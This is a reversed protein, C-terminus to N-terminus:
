VLVLMTLFDFSTLATLECDGGKYPRLDTSGRGKENAFPSKERAEESYEGVLSIAANVDRLYPSSRLKNYRHANINLRWDRDGTPNAVRVVVPTDEAIQNITEENAQINGLYFAVCGALMASALVLILTRGKNRALQWLAEQLTLM